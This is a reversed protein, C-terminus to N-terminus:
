IPHAQWYADLAEAFPEYDVSLWAQLAERAALREPADRNPWAVEFETQLGGVLALVDELTPEDAIEQAQDCVKQRWASRIALGEAFAQGHMNLLAAVTPAAVPQAAAFFYGDLAQLLRQVKGEYCLIGGRDLISAMANLFSTQLNDKDLAVAEADNPVNHGHHPYNEVAHWMLATLDAVGTTGPYPENRDIPPFDGGFGPGRLVTLAAEFANRGHAARRVWAANDRPTFRQREGIFVELRALTAQTDPPERYMHQLARIHEAVKAVLMAQHVNQPQHVDREHRRRDGWRWRLFAQEIARASLHEADGGNYAVCFHVFPDLDDTDIECLQDFITGKDRADFGVHILRRAASLFYGRRADPMAQLGDVMIRVVDTPTRGDVGVYGLAVALAARDSAAAVTGLSALWTPIHDAPHATVDQDAHAKEVLVATSERREPAMLALTLAVHSFNERTTTNTM